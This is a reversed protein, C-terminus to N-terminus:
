RMKAVIFTLDDYQPADAMWARLDDLMSSMMEPVDLHATRRILTKLREEGFEDEAPNHAEVVGDTFAILVDGPQLDLTAEEYDWHPFMGVVTGGVTLEEITGDRRLLYPPNAGGNVYRLQRATEDFQAYFFTTYSNANTSHHLLRNMKGALAAPAAGNSEVLSRLSAQVVSMILAAAIGKGAVDALALGVHGPQLDLFDYYDGGVGRAPLCVGGCQIVASDPAREPFLRRQVDGALKLERRLREQEVIRATLRGNELLLALQAAVSRLALRETATYPPRDIPAGFLLVGAVETRSVIAVALTPDIQRLTDIEAVRAPAHEAAWRSWTDLDERTLPLAASLHRLRRVILADPPLTWERQKSEPSAGVCRFAQGSRAEEGTAGRAALLVAFSAGLSEQLTALSAQMADPFSAAERSSEVIGGLLAAETGRDDARAVIDSLRETVRRYSARVRVWMTEPENRIAILPSLSAARWGPVFCALATFSATLTTALLFPTAVSLQIGLDAASALVRTLAFAALLGLVIAGGAMKLGDGVVLRIVDRATAGLAMRTGIETTRLRVFYSAVGYLGLVALLLASLAFASVMFSQLRQRSLSRMVVDAMPRDDFIAQEPDVRAVAARLERLLTGADLSSRVAWTMDSPSVHRYSLYVEPRTPLHLALNRVDGVIGVVRFRRGEWSSLRVITGIPDGHPWYRRAAAENVILTMLDAQERDADTFFRGQRLPIRLARFFDPSIFNLFLADEAAADPEPQGELWLKSANGLSTLPLRFAFGAHEVGPATGIADILRAQFAIRAESTPYKADPVVTTMATVHDPDFGPRVRYLDRLGFVLAAGVAVLGCALAIQTVVFVRLLGRSRVGASGRAGDSLVDTLPVRRAQWLPALSCLLASVIAVALTFALVHWNVAIEDARPLSGSAIALVARVMWVSAITGAAAGACAVLLGEAFHQAGLQAVSAGLALRVATERARAVSRTLLLSAVNACTLFLLAASAGLLLLLTSRIDETALTLLPIVQITEAEGKGPYARQLGAQITQLDEEMQQRTVGAKQKATCVLYHFDRYKRQNDSPDLPLWFDSSDYIPMRFSAPMVGVITYPAGNMTLAKGVMNPDAGFRQWLATSLVAVRVGGPEDRGDNFLRGLRPPVGFAHVIAASVQTGRAHVPQGNFAVNYSDTTHCGFADATRVQAAIDLGDAYSFSNHGPQNRWGGLIYAYRDGDAYPLPNLLVAQVVTYIATTSGIGVALAAVGLLAIGKAGKWSRFAHLALAVLTV